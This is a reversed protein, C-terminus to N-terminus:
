ASLLRPHRQKLWELVKQHFNMAFAILEGAETQTAGGVLDSKKEEFEKKTM